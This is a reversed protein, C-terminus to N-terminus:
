NKGHLVAFSKTGYMAYRQANGFALQVTPTMQTLAIGAPKLDKGVQLVLM